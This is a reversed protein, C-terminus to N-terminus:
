LASRVNWGLVFIVLVSGFAREWLWSVKCDTAFFAMVAPPLPPQSHMGECAHVVGRELAGVFELAMWVANLAPTAPPLPAANAASLRSPTPNTRTPPVDTAAAISPADSPVLHADRHQQAQQQVDKQPVARHQLAQQQSLHSMSPSANSGAVIGIGHGASRLSAREASARAVLASLM